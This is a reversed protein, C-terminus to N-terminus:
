IGYVSGTNTLTHAMRTITASSYANGAMQRNQLCSLLEAAVDQRAAAGGSLSVTLPLSSRTGLGTSGESRADPGGRRCVRRVYGSGGRAAMRGIMLQFVSIGLSPRNSRM